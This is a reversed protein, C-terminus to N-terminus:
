LCLHMEVQRRYPTSTEFNLSKNYPNHFGHNCVKDCTVLQFSLSFHVESFTLSIAEKTKQRASKIAGITERYSMAMPIFVYSVIFSPINIASSFDDITEVLPQALITLMAIGIILLTVAKLCNFWSNKVAESLQKAEKALLSQQEGSQM